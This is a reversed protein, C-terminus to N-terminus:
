VFSVIDKLVNRRVNLTGVTGRKRYPRKGPPTSM